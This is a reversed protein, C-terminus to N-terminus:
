IELREYHPELRKKLLARLHAKEDEDNFRCTNNLEIMTPGRIRRYVEALRDYLEMLEPVDKAESKPANIYFLIDPIVLDKPWVYISSNHPPLVKYSQAIYWAAQNAWYGSTLIPRDDMTELLDFSRIYIGLGIFARKLEQWKNFRTKYKRMIRPTKKVHKAHLCRAIKKGVTEKLNRQIGEILVFPFERKTKVPKPTTAGIDMWDRRPKKYHPDTHKKWDDLLAEIVPWEFYKTQNFVAMVDDFSYFVKYEEPDVKLSDRLAGYAPIAVYILIVNIVCLLNTLTRHESHCSIM